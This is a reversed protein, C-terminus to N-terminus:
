AVAQLTVNLYNIDVVEWTGDTICQLKIYAQSAASNHLIISSLAGSMLGNVAVGSIGSTAGSVLILVSGASGGGRTIITLVEGAKGSALRASANSAADAISLIILGHNSPLVPPASGGNASLVGASNIVITKNLPSNVVGKMQAGTFDTDYFKFEGDSKMYFRDGGREMGVKEQYTDSIEAM